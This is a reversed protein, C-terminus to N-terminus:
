CIAKSKGYEKFLVAFPKGERQKLKRLRSVAQEDFADCMLHFGGTGKLAIIKGAEIMSATLGIIQGIGTIVRGGTRMSYVPGCANCAVPQAHFRRDSIDSYEKKCIACMTFPEMTTKARDYPFDRIISFRPGCNTCNIFPYGTRHPQSKMDAICEPCVAIDPCIESTEDTMDQSALIFFGNLGGPMDQEVSIEEIQSVVPAKYRLDEVFYAMLSSPGEVKILVGDTSNVVWGHLGYQQALRYVFPRFGVGQVLGKVQITLAICYEAEKNM